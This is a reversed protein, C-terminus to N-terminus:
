RLTVLSPGNFPAYCTVTPPTRLIDDEAFLTRVADFSVDGSIVPAVRDYFERASEPLPEGPRGADEGWV